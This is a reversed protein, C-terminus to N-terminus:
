CQLAYLAHVPIRFPYENAVNKLPAALACTASLASVTLIDVKILAIHMLLAVIYPLFEAPIM